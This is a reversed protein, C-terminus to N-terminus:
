KAKVIRRQRRFEIVERITAGQYGREFVFWAVKLKGWVETVNLWHIGQAFGYIAKLPFHSDAAHHHIFDMKYEFDVPLLLAIKLRALHKARTLFNAKLHFPPNTIVSESRATSM